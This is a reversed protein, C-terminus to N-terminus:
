YRVGFIYSQRPNCTKKKSGNGSWAVGDGDVKMTNRGNNVGKHSTINDVASRHTIIRWTCCREGGKCGEVNNKGGCFYARWSRKGRIRWHV